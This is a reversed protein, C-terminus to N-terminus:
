YRELMKEPRVHAEATSNARAEVFELAADVLVERANLSDPGPAIKRTFRVELPCACPRCSADSMCSPVWSAAVPAVPLARPSEPECPRRSTCPTWQGISRQARRGKRRRAYFARVCRGGVSTARAGSPRCLAAERRNRPLKASTVGYSGPSPHDHPAAPTSDM